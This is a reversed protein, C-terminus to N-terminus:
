KGSIKMGICCPYIGTRDWGTVTFAPVRIAEEKSQEDHGETTASRVPDSLYLSEKKLNSETGRDGLM